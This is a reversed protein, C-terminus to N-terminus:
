DTNSDSDQTKKLKDKAELMETANSLGSLELAKNGLKMLIMGSIKNLEARTFYRKGNEDVLTYFLINIMATIPDAQQIGTEEDVKYTSKTFDSLQKASMEQFYVTEEWEEVYFEVRNLFLAKDLIRQRVENM